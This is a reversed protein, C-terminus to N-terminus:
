GVARKLVIRNEGCGCVEWGQNGLHNLLDHISEGKWNGLLDMRAAKEGNISLVKNGLAMLVMYEWKQM